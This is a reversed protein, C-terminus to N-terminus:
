RIVLVGDQESFLKYSGEANIIRLDMVYSEQKLQLAEDQSINIILDSTEINFIDAGKFTQALILKHGKTLIKFEVTSSFIFDLLSQNSKEELHFYLTFPMEHKAEVGYIKNNLNYLLSINPMSQLPEFTSYNANISACECLDSYVINDYKAFM